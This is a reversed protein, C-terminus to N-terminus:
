ASPAAVIKTTATHTAATKDRCLSDRAASARGLEGEGAADGAVLSSASEDLAVAPEEATPLVGVATEVNPGPRSAFLSPTVSDVMELGSGTERGLGAGCSTLPDLM